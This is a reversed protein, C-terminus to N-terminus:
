WHVWKPKINETKCPKIISKIDKTFAPKKLNNIRM